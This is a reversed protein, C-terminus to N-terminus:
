AETERAAGVTGTADSIFRLMQLHLTQHSDRVAHRRRMRSLLAYNKVRIKRLFLRSVVFILRREAKTRKEGTVLDLDTLLLIKKFTPM